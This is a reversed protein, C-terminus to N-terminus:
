CKFNKLNLVLESVAKTSSGDETLAKAVSEKLMNMRDRILAGAEGGMLGKVVSAIVERGVLGNESSNPTLAVKFNETLMFANM